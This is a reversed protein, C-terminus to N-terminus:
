PETRMLQDIMERVAMVQMGSKTAYEDGTYGWWDWCGLPNLPAFKSSKVQPYLVVIRNAEAWENYGAGRAFADGVFEASQQCGHFAVHLGCEAGSQCAEPAYVFAHDWFQADAYPAQDVTALDGSSTVRSNLPGYLHQLMEGAADYNCANLFPTALEDCPVGTSLTPMGHVVEVSDIFAIQGRDIYRGYLEVSSQSVSRDVVQDAKGHFIWVRDGQMEQPDDIQGSSAYHEIRDVLTAQDIGDGKICPGLATQMSGGACAYPGGALLAVGSILSAHAVHLQGAMYAGSSAGSVTIRTPDINYSMQPESVPPAPSGCATLLLITMLAPIRQFM